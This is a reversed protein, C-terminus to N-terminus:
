FRYTLRGDIFDAVQNHVLMNFGIYWHDKIKYRLGWRHYITPFDRYLRVYDQTHKVLYFGLQQSFTIKRFLFEHGLMFGAFTNSSSDGLNHKISKIGDDYYLEAAATVADITSVRWAVQPNIGLVFKRESKWNANYGNKPSYYLALDFAVRDTKWTTDKIKKYRPTTNDVPNYKIAISASPYNIGRNPEEFGGNSNHQFSAMVGLSLHRDLKYNLGVGLCMFFNVPLSYTQNSPNKISDHPNTLYSLGADGRIFFDANNGLRYNPELFYAASYAKGLIKTNFDFYSFTFGTRSFCGYYNWTKEDINRKGLEFEAGRPHAGATNQIHISHAYIVGYHLRLTYDRQFKKTLSSDDQAKVTSSFFIFSASFILLYFLLQKFFCFQNVDPRM